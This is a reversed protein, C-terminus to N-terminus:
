IQQKKSIKKSSKKVYQYGKTNDELVEKKLMIKDAELNNSFLDFLINEFIEDVIVKLSRAGTNMKYAKEAILNTLNEQTYLDIGMKKFTDKYAKLPSSASNLLINKIDELSLSNLAIFCNIRGIFEPNFGYKIFDEATYSQKDTVTTKKIENKVFGVTSKNLGLKEKMKSFAGSFIVTVRSTDFSIIEHNPLELSFVSGETIKLLSNLPGETTVASVDHTRAKKDIEDFVIIGQQALEIDQDAQNYLDILAEEVDRGKYGSVTFRTSDEIVLPLDVIKAIHKLMASKGVGTPGYLLINSKMQENDFCMNKYIAILLKKVQDDQCLIHKTVKKYATQIDPTKNEEVASVTEIKMKKDDFKHNDDTVFGYTIKIGSKDYFKWVDECSM